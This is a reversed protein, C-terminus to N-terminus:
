SNEKFNLKFNIAHRMLFRALNLLAENKSKEDVSIHMVNNLLSFSNRQFNNLINKLIEKDFVFSKENIELIKEILSQPM